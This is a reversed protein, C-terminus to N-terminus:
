NYFRMAVLSERYRKRYPYSLKHCSIVLCVAAPLHFFVMLDPHGLIRKVFIGLLILVAWSILFIRGQFKRKAPNEIKAM